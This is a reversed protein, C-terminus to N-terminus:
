VLIPDISHQHHCHFIVDMHCDVRTVPFPPGQLFLEKPNCACRSAVARLSREYFSYTRLHRAKRIPLHLNLWPHDTTRLFTFQKSAGGNQRSLCSMNIM